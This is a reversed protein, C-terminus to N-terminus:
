IEVHCSRYRAMLCQRVHHYLANELSFTSRFYLVNAVTPDNSMADDTRLRLSHQNLRMERALFTVNATFYQPLLRRLVAISIDFNEVTGVVAYWSNLNEVARELVHEDSESHSQRYGGLYRITENKPLCCM